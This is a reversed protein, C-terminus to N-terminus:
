RAPMSPAAAPAAAAPPGALNAPETARLLGLLERLQKLLAADIDALRSGFSIPGWESLAYAKDGPLTTVVRTELSKKLGDTNIACGSTILAAALMACLALMKRGAFRHFRTTIM